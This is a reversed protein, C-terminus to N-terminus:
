LLVCCEIFPMKQVPIKTISKRQISSGKRLLAKKRSQGPNFYTDVKSRHRTTCMWKRLNCHQISTGRLSSTFFRIRNDVASLGVYVQGVESCFRPSITDTHLVSFISHLIRFWRLRMGLLSILLCSERQMGFKGRNWYTKGSRSFTLANGLFCEWLFSKM